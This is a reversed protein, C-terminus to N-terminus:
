HLTQAEFKSIYASWHCWINIIICHRWGGWYCESSDFRCPKRHCKGWLPETQLQFVLAQAKNEPRGHRHSCPGKWGTEMGEFRMVLQQSSTVSDQWCFLFSLSSTGSTSSLVCNTQDVARVFVGTLAFDCYLARTHLTHTPSEKAFVSRSFYNAVLTNLCVFQKGQCTFASMCMIQMTTCGISIICQPLGLWIVKTTMTVAIFRHKIAFATPKILHM